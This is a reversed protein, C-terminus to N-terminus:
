EAKEFVKKKTRFKGKFKFLKLNPPKYSIDDIHRRLPTRSIKHFRHPIRQTAICRKRLSQQGPSGRSDAQVSVTFGREMLIFDM